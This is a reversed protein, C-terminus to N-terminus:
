SMLNKLRNLSVVVSCNHQKITEKSTYPLDIHNYAAEYEGSLIEFNRGGHHKYRKYLGLFTTRVSPM